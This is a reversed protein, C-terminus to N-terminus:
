VFPSGPDVLVCDATGLLYANTHAAPPLTAAALPFLVIGSRLEIRRLPGLSAESTYLLRPSAAEPGDDALVRLLHLIPPAALAHGADLRDLAARPQIWDGQESEPPAVRPEGDAARWELLFFRNDFRAPSFPPTLWRGAFQLRSADLALGNTSLWPGLSKEGALQTQRMAAIPVPAGSPTRDPGSGM